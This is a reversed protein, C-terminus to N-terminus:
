NKPQPIAFIMCPTNNSAMFAVNTVIAKIPMEISAIVVYHNHIWKDTNCVQLFIEM